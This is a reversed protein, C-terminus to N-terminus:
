KLFIDQEEAEIPKIVCVVPTHDSPNKLERLKIDIYCTKLADINQLSLLIHDIRMGRNNRLSNGQYNWWTFQQLNPNSIRFADKFGLNLIARLKERERIHFCVQGNLSIPDFVDIENPAINYDGGIIILKENKLLYSMRRYLNDLFVLKYMFMHSDPSQGNPIYVSGVIINQSNYKIKCEIYRAEQYNEVIDIKLKELIPNKSLICVGNRAIQGYVACEYGLKEIKDYPFQEETCRIEQLLIIDIQSDIMFSCLQEVRKRISNVNWTAIKLM